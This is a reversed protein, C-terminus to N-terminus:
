DRKAYLLTGPQVMGGRWRIGVDNPGSGVVTTVEAVLVPAPQASMHRWAAADESMRRLQELVSVDGGDPPNMYHPGPLLALLDATPISDAFKAAIANDIAIRLARAMKDAVAQVELALPGVKQPELHHEPVTFFTGNGDANLTVARHAIGTTVTDHAVLGGDHSLHAYVLTGAAHGHRATKLRYTRM